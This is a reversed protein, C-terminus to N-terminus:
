DTRRRKERRVREVEVGLNFAEVFPIREFLHEKRSNIKEKERKQEARKAQLAAMQEDITILVKKIAEEEAELKVLETIVQNRVNLFQTHNGGPSEVSEEKMVNINGAAPSRNQADLIAKFSPPLSHLTTTKTNDNTPQAPSIRQSEKIDKFDSCVALLDLKFTQSLPIGFRMKQEDPLRNVSKALFYYKALAIAKTKSWRRPMKFATDYGAVDRGIVDSDFKVGPVAGDHSHFQVEAHRGACKAPYLHVWVSQRAGTYQDHIYGFLIAFSLADPDTLPEVTVKDLPAYQLLDANDGLAARLQALSAATPAM